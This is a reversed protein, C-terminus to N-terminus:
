GDGNLAARVAQRLEVMSFPKRLVATGPRGAVVGDVTRDLQGTIVIVPVPEEQGFAEDMVAQGGGGSMVMDTIVVDYRALRMAELAAEANGVGTVRCGARELTLRVLNRVDPQDDAVLVRCDLHEASDAGGNDGPEALHGSAVPARASFRLVFATGRGPQSDVEVGVGHADLISRSVSLGLGTGTFGDEDALSGTTFFPEFIRGLDEPAIGVGSDSLRVVVCGGDDEPEGEGAPEYSTRVLLEGGGPMAHRANLLLNLVVQQIQGPDIYVQQGWSRYDRAVAIQANAFDRAMMHLAAEVPGEVAVVRRVPEKPRAFSMLDRCVEAGRPVAALVMDALAQYAETTDEGRAFEAGLQIGGLLNNFEHAVGAALEGVAALRQAEEARRHVTMDKVVGVSGTVRDTVDRLPTMAVLVPVSRGGQTQFDLAYEMREGKRSHVAHDFGQEGASACVTSLGRGALEGEGYGLMQCLAWNAYVIGGECDVIMLGDGMTGVLVRYQERTEWLADQAQKLDTVDLLISRCPDSSVGRDGAFWTRDLVWREEGEATRIRYEQSFEPAGRAMNDAVEALLRPVDEPHVIDRFCVRGSLLDEARYGWQRISESVLDVSWPEAGWRLVVAPGQHVLSQLESREAQSERLRREGRRQASLDRVHVVVLAPTTGAALCTSVETPFVEGNRRKGVSEIFVGGLTLHTEVLGPLTKAVEEPVVDAVKLAQMERLSYGYMECALRNCTIIHGDLTEIFVADTSAELLAPVCAGLGAGGAPVDGREDAAM